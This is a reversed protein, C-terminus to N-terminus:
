SFPAPPESHAPSVPRAPGSTMGEPKQVTSEGLIQVDSSSKVLTPQGPATRHKPVLASTSQAGAKPRKPQLLIRVVDRYGEYAAILLPTAGDSPRTTEKSAGMEILKGVLSARGNQATLMLLTQQGNRGVHTAELAAGCQLWLLVREDMGQECAEVVQPDITSMPTGAVSAAHTRLLTTVFKQGHMEAFDLATGLKPNPNSASMPKLMATIGVNCGALLLKAAIEDKGHCAAIMLATQGKSNIADLDANCRLLGEVLRAHGGLAGLMLLTYQKLVGTNSDWRLDVRNSGGQGGAVIWALVPIHHGSSAARVIAIPLSTPSPSNLSHSALVPASRHQVKRLPVVPPATKWLLFSSPTQLNGGTALTLPKPPAKKAKGGGKKGGKKGM